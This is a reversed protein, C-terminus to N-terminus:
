TGNLPDRQPPSRCSQHNTPKVFRVRIVLADETLRGDARMEAAQRALDKECDGLIVVVPPAGEIL